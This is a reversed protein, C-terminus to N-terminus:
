VTRMSVTEAFRKVFVAVRDLAEEVFDFIESAQGRTVVFEPRGEESHELESCNPEPEPMILRRGLPM